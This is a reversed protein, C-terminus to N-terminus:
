GPTKPAPRTWAIFRLLAELPGGDPVAPVVDAITSREVGASWINPKRPTGANKLLIEEPQVPREAAYEGGERQLWATMAEAAEAKLRTIMDQLLSEYSM